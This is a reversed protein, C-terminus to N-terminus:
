MLHKLNHKHMLEYVRVYNGGKPTLGANILAQRISKSSQLIELLDEDSIKKKFFDINRGCYTQTQSHCNPCLFRLNERRNDRTNGNIHDLHLTLPKDNWNSLGCFECKCNNQLENILFNRVVTTSVCSNEIFIEEKTYGWKINDGNAKSLNKAWNQRETSTGWHSIDINYKKILKYFTKYFSGCSKPYNLKLKVQHISTSTKIANELEDKTIKCQM